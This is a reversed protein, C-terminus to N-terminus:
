RRWKAMFFYSFM